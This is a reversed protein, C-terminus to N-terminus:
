TKMYKCLSFLAYTFYIEIMYVEHFNARANNKDLKLQCMKFMATYGSGKKKM